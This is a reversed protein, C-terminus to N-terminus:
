HRQGKAIEESRELRGPDVLSAMDCSRAGNCSCHSGPLDLLVSDGAPTLRCWLSRLIHSGLRAHEHQVNDIAFSPSNSWPALPSTIFSRVIFLTRPLFLITVLATAKMASSDRKSAIAIQASDCAIHYKLKSDDQAIM